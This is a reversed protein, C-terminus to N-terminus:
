PKTEAHRKTLWVYTRDALLVSGVVLTLWIKGSFFPSIRASLSLWILAAAFLVAVALLIRNALRSDKRNM